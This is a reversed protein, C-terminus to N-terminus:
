IITISFLPVVSVLLGYSRSRRMNKWRVLKLFIYLVRFVQAVQFLCVSLSLTLPPPISLCHLCLGFPFVFSPVVFLSLCCIYGLVHILFLGHVHVYVCTCANCMGCTNFLRFLSLSLFHTLSYVFLLLYIVSASLSLRPFVFQICTHTHM